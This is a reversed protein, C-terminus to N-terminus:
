SLVTHAHQAQTHTNREWRTDLCWTLITVSVSWVRVELLSLERLFIDAKFTGFYNEERAQLRRLVRGARVV